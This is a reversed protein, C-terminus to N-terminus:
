DIEGNQRKTMLLKASSVMEAFKAKVGGSLSISFGADGKSEAKIGIYDEHAGEARNGKNKAGTANKIRGVPKKDDDQGEQIALDDSFLTKEEERKLVFEVLFNPPNTDRHFYDLAQKYDGLHAGVKSYDKDKLIANAEDQSMNRYLRLNTPANKGTRRVVNPNVAPNTKHLSKAKWGRRTMFEEQVSMKKDFDVKQGKVFSRTRADYLVADKLHQYNIFAEVNEDSLYQSLLFEVVEKKEGLGTEKILKGYMASSTINQVNAVAEGGTIKLMRQVPVTGEIKEQSQRQIVPHVGSRTSDLVSRQVAMRPSHHLMNAQRRQAALRPSGESMAAMQTLKAAQPSHSTLVERQILQRASPAEVGAGSKGQIASQSPQSHPQDKQAKEM